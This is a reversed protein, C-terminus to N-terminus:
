YGTFGIYASCIEQYRGSKIMQVLKPTFKFFEEELLDIEAPDDLLAKHKEIEEIYGQSFNRKTLVARTIIYGLARKEDLEWAHLEENWVKDSLAGDNFGHNLPVMTMPTLSKCKLMFCVDVIFTYETGKKKMFKNEPLNYGLVWGTSPGYPYTLFEFGNASMVQCLKEEDDPAVLLDIDKGDKLHNPLENAINKINAYNVGATNLSDFLGIILESPIFESM